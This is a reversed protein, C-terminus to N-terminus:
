SGEERHNKTEEEFRPLIYPCQFPDPLLLTINFIMDYSIYCINVALLRILYSTEEM